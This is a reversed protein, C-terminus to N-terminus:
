AASAKEQPVPQPVPLPNVRGTELNIFAGHHRIEGHRLLNDLMQMAWDTVHDNVFLSQRDLAEAVSCTPTDDEKLRANMLEPFMEVVTPLRAQLPMVKGKSGRKAFEQSSMEGYQLQNFHCEAPQGLIVQGELKKNGMDLWYRPAHVHAASFNKAITRRARATDVCTILIDPATWSGYFGAPIRGDFKQAHAYWQLGYFLNIRNVLVIAKHLGVDAPAFLQRGVNSPSVVDPDFVHLTMGERGCARLAHDLRALKTLMQAGNGGCGVLAVKIGTVGGISADLRHVPTQTQTSSQKKRTM